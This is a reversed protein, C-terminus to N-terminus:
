SRLVAELRDRSPRTVEAAVPITERMRDAFDRLCIENSGLPGHDFVSSGMGDQVRAILDHDERNVVRNIRLNLYRAAQMERRGDDLAYVSERLLCSTPGLPLFQMFDIQDPYVDFALSPWLLGSHRM